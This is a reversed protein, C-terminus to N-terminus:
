EPDLERVADAIPDTPAAAGARPPGDSTTVTSVLESLGARDGRGYGLAAADEEPRAMPEAELGTGEPAFSEFFAAVSRAMPLTLANRVAAPRRAEDLYYSYALFGLGVLALGRLFGFVGGGIRDAQLARGKLRVRRLGFHLGVYLGVFAIAAIACGIAATTMFSGKLGALSQVPGILALGAGGAGALVVLTGVERLAGRIVAFATSALLVAVVILDFFTM